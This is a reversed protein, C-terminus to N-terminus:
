CRESSQQRGSFKALKDVFDAYVKEGSFQERYLSVANKSMSLILNNNCACAELVDFLKNELNDGYLLGICYNNILREVEGHLPSLVPLGFSIYDIIKNPINNIFNDVNKYPAIGFISVEALAFVKCRDVWGAMVVNTLKKLQRTLEQSKEGDGCIVFQWNKNELISKKAADILPDFDFARSLSGVFIIRIVNNDYVGLNKWWRKADNIQEPTYHQTLSTLPVVTDFPSYKRSSFSRMWTLFSPSMSCLGTANTLVRKGMIYYPFLLLKAIPKLFDPFPEIFIDPWQDKADVILPISNYKAWKTAVFAFEIPPYGVFAVDALVNEKSLIRKLNLALIAHDIIRGIGINKRYGPSPILRIDLNPSIQIKKYTRTRHIKEQHYFGSSWITVTHGASISANALNMARMPRPSGNDSHLPEGTQFIWLRM